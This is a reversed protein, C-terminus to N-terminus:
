IVVTGRGNTGGEPPLDLLLPHGVVVRPRLHLRLLRRHPVGGAGGAVDAFPRGLGHQVLEPLLLHRLLDAEDLHADLLERLLDTASMFCAYTWDYAPQVKIYVRALCTRLGTEYILDNYVVEFRDYILVAVGFEYIFNQTTTM